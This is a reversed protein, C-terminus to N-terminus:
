TFYDFNRQFQSNGNESIMSSVKRDADEFVNFYKSLDESIELVSALNGFRSMYNPASWVTIVKGGFFEQYGDLCLQHARLISQMKNIELFKDAVSQGFIYGAGRESIAFGEIKSEPDSWMLDALAGEVPIDGIRDIKAIDDIKQIYPSLGGHICFFADAIVCGIPLFDFMKNFFNWVYPENYKKLCEQYFGYTNNTQRSEHNGRLLHINDPYKLKFLVLLVMVEVSQPGRDVYDGLFLYNTYPIEGGIRFLEQLDLFQGHIDGVVTIGSQLNLVNPEKEFMSIALTMVYKIEEKTLLKGEKADSLMEEISRFM